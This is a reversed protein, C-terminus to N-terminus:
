RPCSPELSNYESDDDEACRVLSDLGQIIAIKIERLKRGRGDGGRGVDPFDLQVPLACM